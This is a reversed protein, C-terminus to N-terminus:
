EVKKEPKKSSWSLIRDLSFFGPGFAFIVLSAFLYTFPPQNMFEEFNYFLDLTMEQHATAYAGCAVIILPLAALRTWLGILILAGGITEVFAVLWAMYLPYPIGLSTFYEIVQSMNNLKEWGTQIFLLGWIIRIVLLLPSQIWSCLWSYWSHPKPTCHSDM